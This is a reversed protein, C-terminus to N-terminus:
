LLYIISILTLTFFSAVQAKKSRVIIFIISYALFKLMIVTYFLKIKGERKLGTSVHREGKGMITSIIPLFTLVLLLCFVVISIIDSFTYFGSTIGSNIIKNLSVIFILPSAFVILHYYIGFEFWKRIAILINRYDESEKLKNNLLVTLLHFSAIIM